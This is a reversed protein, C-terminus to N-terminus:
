GNIAAQIAKIVKFYGTCRCLNGSIAEKIEEVSPSPNENLLAVGSMILGPTCYGCQVGGEDIFAQQLPHLQGDQSLGEITVIERGDAQPALVLCANIPLGDMIITCAGCEGESCGDKTGTLRLDDRLVQLLTRHAAVTLEVEQGNVMMRIRHESM